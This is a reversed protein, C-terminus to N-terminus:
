SIKAGTYSPAYRPTEDFIQRGQRVLPSEDDGPVALRSSSVTPSTSTQEQDASTYGTLLLASAALLLAAVLPRLLKRRRPTRLLNSRNGHPKKM